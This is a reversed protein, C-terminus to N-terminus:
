VMTNIMAMKLSDLDAAMQTATLTQHNTGLQTIGDGLVRGIGILGVGSILAMMGVRHLLPFLMLNAGTVMATMGIATTVINTIAGGQQLSNTTQQLSFLQKELEQILLKAEPITIELGQWKIPLNISLVTSTEGRNLRQQELFQHSFQLINQRQM